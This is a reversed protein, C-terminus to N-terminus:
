RWADIAGRRVHTQWTIPPTSDEALIVFQRTLSVVVGRLVHGGRLYLVVPETGIPVNRLLEDEKEM